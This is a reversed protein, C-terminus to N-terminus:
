SRRRKAAMMGLIGAGFLLVPAPAPVPVPVADRNLAVDGDRVAWAYFEYDKTIIDQYGSSINFYWAYQTDPAYETGSWYYNSQLNDILGVDNQGYSSTDIGNLTGNGFIGWTPDISGNENLYSELGLNVHYMYALESNASDVNYGCDTGTNAWNCGSTGTDTISALRWDGYGGYVLNNAWANAAGWTLLGDADYGSTMAYNADKLWTINQDSDYIM